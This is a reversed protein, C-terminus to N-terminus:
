ERATRHSPASAPALSPGDQVPSGAGNTASTAARHPALPIDLPSQEFKVPLWVTIRTGKSLESKVDFRGGHSDAYDSITVLGLGTSKKPDPTFGVGNDAITLRMEQAQPEYDWEIVCHTANAHRVVNGLALEAIRYASLRVREPIRSTGASELAAAEDGVRLEVPCIHEYADRLSRLGPLAGMRIIGPHLRHSLKRIDEERIRDVEDSIRDLELRLEPDGKGRKLGLANMKMWVAYLKTQVSGHLEEAIARKVAEDASLMRERSERVAAYQQRLAENAAELRSRARASFRSILFFIVGLGGVYVGVVRWVMSRLASLSEGVDSHTAVVALPRGPKDSVPAVDEILGYTTLVTRAVPQGDLGAFTENGHLASVTEGRRAAAFSAGDQNAGSRNRETSYILRGELSYIDIGVLSLGFVSRRIAIDFDPSLALDAFTERVQDRDSPLVGSSHILLSVHGINRAQQGEVGQLLNRKALDAGVFLMGVAVVSAGAVGIILPHRLFSLARRLLPHM